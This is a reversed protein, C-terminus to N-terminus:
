KEFIKINIKQAFYVFLDIYKQLYIFNKMPEVRQKIEKSHLKKEGIKLIDLLEKM